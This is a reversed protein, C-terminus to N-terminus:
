RVLDKFLDIIFIGDDYFTGLHEGKPWLQGDPMGTSYAERHPLKREECSLDYEVPYITDPLQPSEETWPWGTKGAPPPSPLESLTPCRM